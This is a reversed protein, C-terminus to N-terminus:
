PVLVMNESPVVLTDGPKLTVNQGAGDRLVIDDYSARIKVDKEGNEGFRFVVLKNRAAAPLFGGALTIAQLITTKSKLPYRAPRAVEGLVYIAYSNVEKVVISVQPNEKFEKLKESIAEALQVATKGVATIDGILPLSIRGDPRVLVQKSLDANRWVTIDLVDEPGIWYEQTVILSAKDTKEVAQGAATVTTAANIQQAQLLGPALAYEVYGGVILALFIVKGAWEWQTLGM